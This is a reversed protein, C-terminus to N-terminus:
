SSYKSQKKTKLWQIDEFEVKKAAYKSKIWNFQMSLGANCFVDDYCESLMCTNTDLDFAFISRIIWVAHAATAQLIGATGARRKLTRRFEVGRPPFSERWLHIARSWNRQLEKQRKNACSDWGGENTLTLHINEATVCIECNVKSIKATTKCSIM